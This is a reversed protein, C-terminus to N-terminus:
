NMITGVSGNSDDSFNLMKVVPTLVVLSLLAASQMDGMELKGQAKQLTMEAGQLAHDIHRWDIFGKRKASTIYEQILKKASSIDEKTPAYKFLLRKEIEPYGDNLELIDSILEDKNQNLLVSKLDQEKAAEKTVAAEYTPKEKRLAFLVAAQHKCYESLDYPCSCYSNVIVDNHLFIEVHYVESGDVLGKYHIGDTTLLNLVKGKTFYALGRELIRDDIWQEFNTLKM